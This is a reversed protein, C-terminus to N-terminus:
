GIGETPGFFITPQVLSHAYNQGARRRKPQNSGIVRSFVIQQGTWFSAQQQGECEEISFAMRICISLHILCTM